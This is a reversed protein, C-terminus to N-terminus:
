CGSRVVAGSVLGQSVLHTFSSMAPPDGPELNRRRPLPRKGRRGEEVFRAAIFGRRSLGLAAKSSHVARPTVRRLLWASIFRVRVTHSSGPIRRRPQDLARGLRADVEDM